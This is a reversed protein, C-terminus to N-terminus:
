DRPSPLPSETRVNKELARILTDTRRIVVDLPDHDDMHILAHTNLIKGEAAPLRKSLAERHEQIRRQIENYQAEWDEEFVSPEPGDYAATPSFILAFLGSKM